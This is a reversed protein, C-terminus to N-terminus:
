KVFGRVDLEERARSIIERVAQPNQINSMSFEDQASSTQIFLTGYNLISHIFGKIEVRIDQINELHLESTERSFLSLQEVDIVRQNTVFTVDLYYNTIYIGLIM